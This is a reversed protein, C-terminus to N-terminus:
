VREQVLLEFRCGLARFPTHKSHTSRQHNILQGCSMPRRGVKHTSATYIWKHVLEWMLIGECRVSVRNDESQMESVHGGQSRAWVCKQVYTNRATPSHLLLILAVM